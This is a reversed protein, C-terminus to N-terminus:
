VKITEGRVYTEKFDKVGTAVVLVETSMIKLYKIIFEAIELVTEFKSFSMYIPIYLQRKM